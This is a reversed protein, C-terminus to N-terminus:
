AKTSKARRCSSIWLRQQILRFLWAPRKYQRSGTATVSVNYAGLNMNPINYAGADSSTTKYVSGTDAGTATVTANAVVAGSSDTVNGALTGRNSQAIATGMLLLCFTGIALATLFRKMALERQIGVITLTRIGVAEPRPVVECVVASSM